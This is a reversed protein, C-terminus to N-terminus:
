DYIGGQKKKKKKVFRENNILRYRWLAIELNLLRLLKNPFSFCFTDHNELEM